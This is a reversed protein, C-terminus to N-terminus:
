RGSPRILGSVASAAVGHHLVSQDPLVLEVIPFERVRELVRRIYGGEIVPAHCGGITTM